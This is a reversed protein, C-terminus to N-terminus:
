MSEPASVGLLKLGNALAQRTAVILNLRTDRCFLEMVAHSDVGERKCVRGVENAFSVKLAHYANNVYKLMEAARLPTVVAEGIGAYLVQLAEASKPDRAGIM